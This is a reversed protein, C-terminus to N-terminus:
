DRYNPNCQKIPMLAKVYITSINKLKMNLGIKISEEEQCTKSCHICKLRIGERKREKTRLITMGLAKCYPCIFEGQYDRKWDIDVM